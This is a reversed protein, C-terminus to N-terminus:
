KCQEGAPIVRSLRSNNRCQVPIVKDLRSGVFGGGATSVRGELLGMKSGIWIVSVARTRVNIFRIQSPARDGAYPHGIVAAVPVPSLEDGDAFAPTSCLLLVAFALRYPMVPEQTARISADRVPVAYIKLPSKKEQGSTLLGTVM